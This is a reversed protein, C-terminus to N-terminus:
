LTSLYIRLMSVTVLVISKLQNTQQQRADLFDGYAMELYPPCLLLSELALHCCVYRTFKWQKRLESCACLESFLPNVRYTQQGRDDWFTEWEIVGNQKTINETYLSHVEVM